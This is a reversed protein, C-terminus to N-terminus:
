LEPTNSVVYNSMRINITGVLDYGGLHSTKGFDDAFVKEIIIEIMENKTGELSFAKIPLNMTGGCLIYIEARVM